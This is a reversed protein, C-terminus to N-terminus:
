RCSAEGRSEPHPFGSPRRTRGASLLHL